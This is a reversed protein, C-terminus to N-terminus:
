WGLYQTKWHPKLWRIRPTKLQDKVPNSGGIVPTKVLGEYPKWGTNSGSIGSTKVSGFATNGLLTQAVLRPDKDSVWEQKELLRQAVLPPHKLGFM